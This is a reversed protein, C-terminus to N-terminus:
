RKPKAKPKAKAKVVPENAVDKEVTIEQNDTNSNETMEM